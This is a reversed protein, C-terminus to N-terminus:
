GITPDTYDGSAAFYAAAGAVRNAVGAGFTFYAIADQIPFQGPTATLSLGLPYGEEYRVVLPNAPSGFGMPKFMGAYNTPLRSEMKIRAWGRNSELIGPYMEPDVLARTQVGTTMLVQRDPRIFGDVAVWDAADVEPIVLEFPSTYGHELLTDLMSIAGAKRGAADDAARFFHTHTNLFTHGEYNSPIYASDATGGDAFPVSKGTSGVTEAASSFLRNLLKRDWTNQSREILARIDLRYRSQKMRRMALYTWGLAGGYDKMPVMHGTTAGYIPDPQGYETIESLGSSEGGTSYEIGIDSTTYLYQGWYGSTLSRNFLTIAAGIESVIRDFTVGENSAWQRMYTLDWNSPLRLVTKLDNLGVAM